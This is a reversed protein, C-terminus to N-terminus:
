FRGVSLGLAVTVGNYDPKMYADYGLVTFYRAAVYPRVHETAMWTVRPGVDLGIGLYSDRGDMLEDEWASPLRGDPTKRDDGVLWFGFGGYGVMAGLDVRLADNLETGIQVSAGLLGGDSRLELSEQGNYPEELALTFTAPNWVGPRSFGHIGLRLHDGLVGIAIGAGPGHSLHEAAAIGRWELDVMVSPGDSEGASAVGALVYLFSFM